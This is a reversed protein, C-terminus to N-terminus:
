SVAKITQFSADSTNESVEGPKLTNEPVPTAPPKVPVVVTKKEADSAKRSNSGGMDHLVAEMKAFGEAVQEQVNRHGAFLEDGKDKNKRRLAQLEDAQEDWDALDKKIDDALELFKSMNPERYRRVFNIRSGIIKETM